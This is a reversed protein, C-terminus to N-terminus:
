DVGQQAPVTTPYKFLGERESEAQQLLRYVVPKLLPRPEVVTACQGVLVLLVPFAEAVDHFRELARVAVALPRM